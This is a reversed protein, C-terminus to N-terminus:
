SSHLTLEQINKVVRFKFVSRVLKEKDEGKILLESNKINRRKLKEILPSEM